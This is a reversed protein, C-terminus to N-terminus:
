RGTNRKERPHSDSNYQLFRVAALAPDIRDTNRVVVDM